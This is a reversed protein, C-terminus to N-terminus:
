TALALMELEKQDPCPHRIHEDSVMWEIMVRKADKPDEPWVSKFGDVEGGRKLVEPEWWRKRNSYIWSKIQKEQLGTALALMELEKQDPIPHRIHEDSVMWEIMVRKADKPHGRGKKRKGGSTSTSTQDAANPGAENGSGDRPRNTKRPRFARSDAETKHSCHIMSSAHDFLEFAEDETKTEGFYRVLGEFKCYVEYCGESIKRVGIDDEVSEPSVMSLSSSANRNTKVNNEDKHNLSALYVKLEGDTPRRLSEQPWYKIADELTMAIEDPEDGDFIIYCPRPYRYMTKRKSIDEDKLDWDVCKADFRDVKCKFFKDNNEQTEKDNKWDWWQGSVIIEHNVLAAPNFRPALLSGELKATPPFAKGTPAYTVHLLM